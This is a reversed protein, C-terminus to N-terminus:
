LSTGSFSLSCFSSTVPHVSRGGLSLVQRGGRGLASPTPLAGGGAQTGWSNLLKWGDAAVKKM